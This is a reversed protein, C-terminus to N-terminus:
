QQRRAVGRKQCFADLAAGEGNLDIHMIRNIRDYEDVTVIQQCKHQHVEGKVHLRDTFTVRASDRSESNVNSEFEIRDFVRFGWTTNKRYTEIIEASGQLLDNRFEYQCDASLVKRLADYERRDLLTAFRRAIQAAVISM